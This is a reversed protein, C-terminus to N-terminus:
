KKRGGGFVVGISLDLHRNAKEQWKYSLTVRLHNFFEAGIRPMVCFSGTQGGDCFGGWNPQTNDFTIPASTEISGYGMGLGGFLSVRRGRRYNYDAVALLNWSRFKLQGAVFDSERHFVAGSAQVGVDLPLRRLNYRLEAHCTAGTNNHDFQLKGTAFVLGIGIEGEFRKIEPTSAINQANTALTWFLTLFYIFTKKM